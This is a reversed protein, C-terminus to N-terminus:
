CPSYQFEKCSNEPASTSGSAISSASTTAQSSTTATGAAPNAAGESKVLRVGEHEDQPSENKSGAVGDIMISKKPQFIVIMCPWPSSGSPLGIQSEFRLRGRLFRIKTANPLIYDHFYGTCTRAPILLVCLKGKQQEQVIKKVWQETNHFPPNIFNRMGWEVELGNFTPNAPCPDFDFEFEEYLTQLLHPPTNWLGNGSSTYAEM